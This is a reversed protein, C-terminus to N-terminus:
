LALAIKEALRHWSMGVDGERALRFRSVVEEHSKKSEDKEGVRCGFVLPMLGRKSRMPAVFVHILNQCNKLLLGCEPSKPKRFFAFFRVIETVM